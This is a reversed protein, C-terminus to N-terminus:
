RRRVASLYGLSLPWIIDLSSGPAGRM